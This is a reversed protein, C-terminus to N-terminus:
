LVLQYKKINNVIKQNENLTCEYLLSFVLIHEDNINKKKFKIKKTNNIFNM